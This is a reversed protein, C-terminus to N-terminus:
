KSMCKESLNANLNSNTNSKNYRVTSLWYPIGMMYFQNFLIALSTCGLGCLLLYYQIPSSAVVLELSRHSRPILWTLAVREDYMVLAVATILISNSFVIAVLIVIVIELPRAPNSNTEKMKKERHM